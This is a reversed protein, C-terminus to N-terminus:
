VHARGIQHEKGAPDVYCPEVIIAGVGGEARRRYYWIQQETVAGDAAGFGTKVPAMLLRNALTMPGIESSEFIRVAPDKRHPPPVAIRRREPSCGSFLLAAGLTIGTALNIPEMVVFVQKGAALVSLPAAGLLQGLGDRHQCVPLGPSCFHARLLCTDAIVYPIM